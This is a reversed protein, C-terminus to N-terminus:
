FNGSDPMVILKKSVPAGVLLSEIFKKKTAEGKQTFRMKQPAEEKRMHDTTDIFDKGTHWHYNDVFTEGRSDTYM